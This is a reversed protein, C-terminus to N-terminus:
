MVRIRKLSICAGLVERGGFLEVLCHRVEEQFTTSEIFRPGFLVAAHKKELYTTTIICLTPRVMKIREADTDPASRRSEERRGAM